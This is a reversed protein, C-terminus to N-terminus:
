RSGSSITWPAPFFTKDPQESLFEKYIFIEPDPQTRLHRLPIWLIRDFQKTWIKGNIFCHIIKKCLTTKGVGARGRILIRRPVITQKELQREDFLGPLDIAEAGVNEIKLRRAISFESVSQRRLHSRSGGVNVTISSEVITLNVYCKDM